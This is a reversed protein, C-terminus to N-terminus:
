NHSHQKSLLIAIQELKMRRSGKLLVTDGPKVIKLLAKGAKEADPFTTVNKSNMKRSVAEEMIKKSLEGVALLYDIKLEAVQRGTDRHFRESEKGLELMDGLVAIKRGSTKTEALTTLAASMSAPNANYSDNIIKIGGSELIEMRRSAPRFSELAKAIEPPSLHFHDAVAYTALANYINHRGLMNLRIQNQNVKFDIHGNGSIITQVARFDAEHEIAFTKVPHKEAKARKSLLPDDMNLFVPNDKPLQELLEFKAQAVKELSGFFELHSPGINLIVALSPSVLGAIHAIEGFQNAGIEVVLMETKESLQFITLSTGILTNYSDPSKLVNFKKALTHALMEKTTTKGNSGTVAIVPLKFRQRYFRALNELAPKTQSVSILPIEPKHESLIKGAKPKEVLIAGANKKLAQGVFDHGDQNEGPLAMFLNGDVLTRSDVSVGTFKRSQIGEAQNLLEGKTVEQLQRVTLSIM